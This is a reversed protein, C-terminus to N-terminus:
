DEEFFAGEVLKDLVWGVRTEKSIAKASNIIKELCEEQFPCYRCPPRNNSKFCEGDVEIIKEYVNNLNM